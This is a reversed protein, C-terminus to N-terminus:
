GWLPKQEAAERRARPARKFTVNLPPADIRKKQLVEKITLIQIRPHKGWPSTYYGAAAAKSRVSASPEELAVLAGIAGGEKKLTSQIARVDDGGVEPKVVVVVEKYKVDRRDDQFHLRGHVAEPEGREEAPRAGLAGLVWWRFQHPEKEALRRVEVESRPEGAVEYEVDEGFMDILRRRTVAIALHTVDIGIWSRNLREAVVVATGSGCFPDLVIDGENSSARIIRELLAEPKQTPYGLRETGAAYDIKTWVDDIPIGEQEDLYRKYRPIGEGNKPVVIRGKEFEELMRERTWRWVRTVGLFEYTLNPRNPNPNLLSTLQYRRGGEDTLTYQETVRDPDHSVYQPNWTTRGSDKVYSLIVDHNRAFRTFAHGKPHSRRWIIENRFNAAGFVADMLVKLYHSATPDCHLYISGSGTLVRRLEVLRPAMMALYALMDSEGLLARLAGMVRVLSEQGAQVVEDFAVEAERNWEWSDDFATVRERLRKVNRHQFLASYEQDSKFPPDLYVLGVTEDKVRSRLIGLNDGYYLVGKSTTTM